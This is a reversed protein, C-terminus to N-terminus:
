LIPHGITCSNTKCTKNFKGVSPVSAGRCVYIFHAGCCWGKLYLTTHIIFFYHFTNCPWGFEWLLVFSFSSLQRKRNRWIVRQQQTIFKSWLQPCAVVTACWFLTTQCMVSLYQPSVQMNVGFPLNKIVTYSLADCQCKDCSLFKFYLLIYESRM